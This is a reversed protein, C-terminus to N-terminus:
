QASNFNEYDNLNCYGNSLTLAIFQRTVSPETNVSLQIPNNTIPHSINFRSVQVKSLNKVQVEQRYKNNTHRNHRLKLM